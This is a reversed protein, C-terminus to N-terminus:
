VQRMVHTPNLDAHGKNTGDGTAGNLSFKHGAKYCPKTGDGDCVFRPAKEAQQAQPVLLYTKGGIIATRYKGM